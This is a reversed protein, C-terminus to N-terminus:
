RGKGNWDSDDFIVMGGVVVLVVLLLTLGFGAM